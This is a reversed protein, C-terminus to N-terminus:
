QRAGIEHFFAAMVLSLTEAPTRPLWPRAEPAPAVMEYLPVDFGHMNGLRQYGYRELKQRSYETGGVCLIRVPQGAGEHPDRTYALRAGQYYVTLLQRATVWGIRANVGDVPRAVLGHMFLWRSPFMLDDPGIELDNRTGERLKRYVSEYLPLFVSGGVPIGGCIAKLVAWECAGWWGRAQAQYQDLTRQMRRTALDVLRPEDDTQDPAVEKRVSRGVGLFIERALTEVETHNTCLLSETGGTAAFAMVEPIARWADSLSWDSQVQSELCITSFAEVLEAADATTWTERGITNAEIALKVPQFQQLYLLLGRVLVAPGQGSAKLAAYERESGGQGLRSRVFRFLKTYTPWGDCGTGDVQSLRRRLSENLVRYEGIRRPM